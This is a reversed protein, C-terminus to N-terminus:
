ANFTYWEDCNVCPAPIESHNGLFSQRFHPHGKEWISSLDEKLINGLGYTQHQKCISVEGDVNVYLDRALHWCFERHIPTLDSVRREPLKGAYSNYKQLIVNINKKEFFTFYADIEDEVEKMKIMQVYLSTSPLIQKLSEINELVSSLFNKGYIQEYRNEKLTTVDVILCLKKKTEEPLINIFDILDNRNGYLGTEIILEKLNSYELISSVIEKWEPHLLPEGSGGLCFTMESPFASDLKQLITKADKHSIFSGEKDKSLFQKPSFIPLTENGRFIEWEIYSPAYRFISPQEKLVPLISEYVPEKTQNLVSRILNLSRYDRVRLDFRYQRLDPPVFFIDVDYHNINKLFFSHVETGLGDPLTALFERSIVTPILGEPLNESYSYQSFFDTHRQWSRKMLNVDLLPSIGKFYLFCVEDWDPDQYKSPPLKEGIRNLFELESSTNDYSVLDSLEKENRIWDTLDENTRIHITLNPFVSHIQNKFRIWLDPSPNKKLFRLSEEDLFVAALSPLYDKKTM